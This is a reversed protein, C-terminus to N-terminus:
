CCNTNNFNSEIVIHRGATFRKKGLNLQVSKSNNEIPLGLFYAFMYNNANFKAYALIINNEYKEQVEYLYTGM